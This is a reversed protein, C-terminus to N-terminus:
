MKHLSTSIMKPGCFFVGINKGRSETAIIKFEEEWKPRGFFTKTKSLGTIFDPEGQSAHAIVNAEEDGIKETLFVKATLLSDLKLEEMQMEMAELLNAFWSFTLRERAIWYFYVKQCHM